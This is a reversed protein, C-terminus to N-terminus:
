DYIMISSHIQTILNSARRECDNCMRKLIVFVTFSSPIAAHRLITEPYFM